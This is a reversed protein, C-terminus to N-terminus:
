NKNPKNTMKDKLYQSFDTLRSESKTGDKVSKKTSKKGYKKSLENLVENVSNLHIEEVIKSTVVEVTGDEWCTVQVINLKEGDVGIKDELDPKTPYDYLEKIIREGTVVNKKFINYGDISESANLFDCDSEYESIDQMSEMFEQQSNPKPVGVFTVECVIGKIILKV